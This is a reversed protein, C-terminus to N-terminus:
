TQQQENGNDEIIQSQKEQERKLKAAEKGAKLKELWVTKEDPEQSEENVEAFQDENLDEIDEIEEKVPKFDLIVSILTAIFAIIVIAAIIFSRKSM